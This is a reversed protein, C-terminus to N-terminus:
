INSIAVKSVGLRKGFEEMTLKQDKRIIRIRENETM